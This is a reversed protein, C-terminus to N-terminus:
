NKSVGAKKLLDGLSITELTPAESAEPKECLKGCHTCNGKKDCPPHWYLSLPLILAQQILDELDVQDGEFFSIGIDDEYDEESKSTDREGPAPRAQLIFNAEIDLAKEIGEDCRSCPQRYKCTVRGKTEAGQTTKTVMLDVAPAETFLIDSERGENMRANLNELSLSTKVSLGEAPLRSVRVKM